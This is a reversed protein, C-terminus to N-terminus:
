TFHLYKKMENAIHIILTGGRRMRWRKWYSEQSVSALQM